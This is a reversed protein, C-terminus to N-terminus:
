SAAQLVEGRRWEYEIPDVAFCIEPTADKGRFFEWESHGVHVIRHRWASEARHVALVNVAGSATPALAFPKYKLFAAAEDVSAFPSGPSLKGPKELDLHVRASASETDIEAQVIGVTNAVRVAAPHFRFDTLCNGVLSMLRRDCDSRVFYLGEITRNDALRVKAHLRYAIHWYNFGCFRPFGKPRMGNIRCIVVNWFAFDGHTVLELPAPLFTAAAAIPTRWTFLWCHEIKGQVTFPNTVPLRM